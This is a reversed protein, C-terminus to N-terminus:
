GHENYKKFRPMGKGHEPQGDQSRSEKKKSINCREQAAFPAIKKDYRSGKNKAHQDDLSHRINSLGPLRSNHRRPSQIRKPRNDAPSWDLGSPIMNFFDIWFRASGNIAGIVRDIRMEKALRQGALFSRRDNKKAARVRKPISQVIIFCQRLQKGIANAAFFAHKIKAECAIPRLLEQTVQL